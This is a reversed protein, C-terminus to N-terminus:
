GGQDGIFAVRIEEFTRVDEFNEVQNPIFLFALIGIIIVPISVLIIKKM